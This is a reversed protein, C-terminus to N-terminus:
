QIADLIKQVKDREKQYKETMRALEIKTNMVEIMANQLEDKTSQCEDEVGSIMDLMTNFDTDYIDLQSDASQLADTVSRLDDKTMQLEDKTKQLDNEVISLDSKLKENDEKLAILTVAPAHRYRCMHLVKYLLEQLITISDISWIDQLNAKMFLSVININDPSMDIPKGIFRFNEVLTPIDILMRGKNTMFVRKLTSAHLKVSIVEGPLLNSTIQNSSCKIIPILELATAAELAIRYGDRKFTEDISAISRQMKMASADCISKLRKALSDGIDSLAESASRKPAAMNPVAM